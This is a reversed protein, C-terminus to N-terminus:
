AGVGKRLAAEIYNVADLLEDQLHRLWDAGSLDGRELTVRYKRQGARSRERLRAVVAEVVPDGCGTPLARGCIGCTVDGTCTGCKAATVADVLTEIEGFTM